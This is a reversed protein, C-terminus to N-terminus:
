FSFSFFACLRKDVKAGEKAPQSYYAVKANSKIKDNSKWRMRMKNAKKGMKAKKTTTTGTCIGKILSFQSNVCTIGDLSSHNLGENLRKNRLKRPAWRLELLNVLVQGFFLRFKCLKRNFHQNKKITKKHPLGLYSTKQQTYFSINSILHRYNM